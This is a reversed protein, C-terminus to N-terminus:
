RRRPASKAASFRVLHAVLREGKKEAHVVLRAGVELDARTAPGDPTEYKTADTLAVTQERKGDVQIVISTQTLSKVTGRVHEEGGHAALALSIALLMILSTLPTYRNM